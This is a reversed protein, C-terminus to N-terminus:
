ANQRKERAVKNIEKLRNYLETRAEEDGEMQRYLLMELTYWHDSIMSWGCGLEALEDIRDRYGPVAAVLDVCRKFDSNDHPIDRGFHSGVLTCEPLGEFFEVMTESSIGRNGKRLWEAVGETMEM